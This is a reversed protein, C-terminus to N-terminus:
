VANAKDKHKKDEVKPTYKGTKIRRGPSPVRARQAERRIKMKAKHEERNLM